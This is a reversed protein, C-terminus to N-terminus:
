KTKQVRKKQNNCGISWGCRCHVITATATLASLCSTLVGDSVVDAWVTTAVVMAAIMASVALLVSVVVAVVSTVFRTERSLVRHRVQDAGLPRAAAVVVAVCGGEEPVSPGVLERRRPPAAPGTRCHRVVEVQLVPPQWTPQRYVSAPQCVALSVESKASLLPLSLRLSIVELSIRARGGVEVGAEVVQVRGVLHARASLVQPLQSIQKALVVHRQMMRRPPTQPLALPRRGDRRMRWMRLEMLMRLLRLRVASFWVSVSM